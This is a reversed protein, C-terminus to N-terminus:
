WRRRQMFNSRVVSRQKIAVQSVKVPPPPVNAPEPLSPLPDGEAEEDAARSVSALMAAIRAVKFGRENILGQLAAYAYVRTDLAENSLHSQLSWRRIMHGGKREIVLREATLQDYYGEPRGGPFHCYGPGPETILLRQRIAEKAANVGIIKVPRRPNRNRVKTKRYERAPWVPSWQGMRDSAGKIAWINRGTRAQCFKYVEETNHGGSDVCAAMLRIKQGDERQWVKLLFQDLDNWVDLQAPDGTFVQYGISWSEENENWGVIECELRGVRDDSSPQVDIGGTIVCVGNPILTGWEEQRKAVDSSRVEKTADIKYPLALQTNYFTQKSEADKEAEIWKEALKVVTTSPSYLKSATFGAHHNSVPRKGCQACKAYGIKYEDDYDWLRNIRPDQGKGCCIFSRTQLWRVTKLAIRRQGETWPKNCKECFIKAEGTEHNRGNKPWHVHRFFDLTQWHSCHPCELYPRRQDSSLYSAYIRSTEEITPSCARIKLSMGKEDYTATREEGLLIPDGEKTPAYKDIEDSLVYRVPRAALNMPSGASVMAVFGGPFHKVDITNESKRSRPNGVLNRLVPTEQIMPTLREKSFGEAADENPYIVLTPGPDAHIIRGIVNEMFATKMLQTCSMISIMEVGPEDTAMMPGRAVEVRSTQWQGPNASNKKSLIRYKDAWDPLNQTEPVQYVRWAHRLAAWITEKLFPSRFDGGDPM